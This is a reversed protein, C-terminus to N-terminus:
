YRSAERRRFQNTWKNNRSYAEQRVCRDLSGRGDGTNAREEFYTDGGEREGTASTSVGKRWPHTASSLCPVTISASKLCTRNWRQPGDSFLLERRQRLNTKLTRTAKEFGRSGNSLVGFPPVTDEGFGVIFIFGVIIGNVSEYGEVRGQSWATTVQLNTYQISVYNKVFIYFRCSPIKM